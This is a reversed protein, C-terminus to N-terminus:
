SIATEYPQTNFKINLSETSESAPKELQGLVKDLLNGLIRYNNKIADVLRDDRNGEKYESKLNESSVTLLEIEQKLMAKVKEAEPGSGALTEIQNMKERTQVAFYQEMQEVEAPLNGNAQQQRGQHNDLVTMIGIGFGALILVGAAIKVWRSIRAFNEAKQQRERDDLLRAFKEEHNSGPAHADFQQRNENIFDELKKM